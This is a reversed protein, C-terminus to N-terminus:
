NVDRSAVFEALATAPIRRSRGVKYSRLQGSKLLEYITTRSLRLVRAAEEPTHQLVQLASTDSM